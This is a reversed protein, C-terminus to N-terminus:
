DWGGKHVSSQLERIPVMNGSFDVKKFSQWTFAVEPCSIRKLNGIRYVKNAWPINIAGDSVVLQASLRPICSFVVHRDRYM